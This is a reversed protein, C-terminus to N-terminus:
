KASSAFFGTASQAADRVRDFDRPPNHPTFMLVLYRPDAYECEVRHARFLEALEQGSRGAAAGDLVLKLPESPRVLGPCRADLQAKLADLARICDALRAPWDGALAGACLDLSQLILYSPSTSGFLCMAGRVAEPAPALLGRGVHLYAGGTLVPLTKHASDCCLDAGLDLPHCPSPLFHLYAGHANDVLLLAGHRHAVQALAAIDQVGGLYDPSTLYVAAPPAELGALARELGEPTVPCSCLSNREEPWLWAVEFDLLAGIQALALSVHGGGCLILREM